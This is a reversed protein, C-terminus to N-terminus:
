GLEEDIAAFMRARLELSENVLHHRAEPLYVVRPQFLREVVKINYKRDVTRDAHGQIVLPSL